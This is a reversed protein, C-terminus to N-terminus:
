LADWWLETPLNGCPVETHVSKAPFSGLRFAQRCPISLAKNALKRIVHFFSHWCLHTCIIRLLQTEFSIGIQVLTPLYICFLAFLCTSITNYYAISWVLLTGTWHPQAINLQSLFWWQKGINAMPRPLIQMLTTEVPASCCRREYLHFLDAWNWGAKPLVQGVCFMEFCTGCRWCHWIVCIEQVFREPDFAAWNCSRLEPDAFRLAGPFESVAALVIDPDKKWEDGVDGSAPGICCGPSYNEAISTIPLHRSLILLPFCLVHPKVSQAM